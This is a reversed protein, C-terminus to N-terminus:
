NHRAPMTPKATAVHKAPKAVVVHKALKVHKAIKVKKVKHKKVKVVHVKAAAPKVHTIAVATAPAGNQTRVTSQAFVPAALLSSAILAITLKKFM